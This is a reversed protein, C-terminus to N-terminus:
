PSRAPCSGSSSTRPAATSGSRRGRGRRTRPRASAVGGRVATSSVAERAAARRRAARRRPPPGLRQREAGVAHAGARGRADDGTSRPPRPWAHARRVRAKDVAVQRRRVRGGPAPPHRGAGPPPQGLRALARGVALPRRAASAPTSRTSCWPTPRRPSCWGCPWCPGPWSAAPPWRPWRCPPSARTPASCSRRRRRGSRDDGVAVEVGPRRCPWSACTPRRGRAALEPAAARRAAASSRGRGGDDAAAAEAREADLTPRGSTTARSSPWARCRGRRPLGHVDALTDGYKRRLEHLLQRREGCSPWASRTTTSAGRGRRAARRRRRDLEAALSACGTTAGGRVAGPRRPRRARRRRADLAGGDDTSRPSRAARGGRPPRRADALLTRRPTSARRGRRPRRPRGRRARRGPLAAPRDRPGPRPRRRRARGARADLRGAAGAPARALPASTSAPSATSRPASRRRRRAPEPPRAPRPPRRAGRGREALTPPPPWAATSTPARGARPRCSGPAARGRRRRRRLSGRRRGRGRGPAGARRRGPRRRLLEIAEVLMTKGAGTEGTLATM